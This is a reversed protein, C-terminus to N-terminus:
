VYIEAIKTKKDFYLSQIEDDLCDKVPIWGDGYGEGVLGDEIIADPHKKLFERVTMDKEKNLCVVFEVRICINM